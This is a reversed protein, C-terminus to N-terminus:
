RSLFSLALAAAQKAGGTRTQLWAAFRNRVAQAALEADVAESSLAALLETGLGEASHVQRALGQTFLDEGVWAFNSIHPGVFPVLGEALPELFNQGGLPALSGGVFVADAAAYLRPLEGFTDWLVVGFGKDGYYVQQSHQQQTRRIHPVGQGALTQGWADVRHMHRPALALLLPAKDPRKGANAKLFLLVSLLDKEEEERTSALAALQCGSPLLAAERALARRSKGGTDPQAEPRPPTSAEHMHLAAATLDFKINPMVGAAKSQLGFVSSFRQADNESIALVAAPALATWLRRSLSYAKCSKETMRGNLVIVPIAAESAAALLGPWLETELLIVLEPAALGLAKRMLDPRDLPFYRPVVSLGAHWGCASPPISELVDLGQRTCTTCLVSLSHGSFSPHTQLAKALEPLFGQVLRSEGGSAAQIWIRHRTSPPLATDGPSLWNEPLWNDPVLRGEFGEKLRKHRKLLPGAAHWLGSYAGLLLRQLPM